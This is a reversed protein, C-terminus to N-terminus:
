IRYLSTRRRRLRRKKKNIAIIRVVILIVALLIYWKSLIKKFLSPNPLPEVDMTSIIDTESITKGDLIYEVKGITQGKSIPAKLDDMIVKEQVKDKQGKRIIFHSDTKTVGSVFPVVGNDVKFNDIFKNAFGLNINEFNEIGYNLLKHIDSYINKGNSKLVVAILNHGDKELSIVLCQQAAVTYGSKVGNVGDYKIPVLKGDVDIKENSYLVKNASKLYRQETKKNTVPIIYTYNKVISRFKENKMAYRAILALDYATTKHDENPLGNPNIFNTNLAGLSKAKENMLKSFAEISGSIHKAIAFAADNASEILLANLLQELSLKEGPELAIHSGSTLNVVEEDITVIDEMNGNEIALIATMIKTTSAPYLQSHSNKEYLIESTDTDILIAGEGSLNLDEAFSFSYTNLLFIFIFLILVKKLSDM